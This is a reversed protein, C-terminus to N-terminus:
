AAVISVTVPTAATTGAFVQVSNTGAHVCKGASAPMVVCKFGNPYHLAENLYIETPAPITPNTTYVLTFSGTTANYSMSSTVGAVAQAYTRSFGSIM